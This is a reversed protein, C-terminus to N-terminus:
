LRQMSLVADHFIRWPAVALGVWVGLDLWVWDFEVLGLRVWGYGALGLWVLGSWTLGM